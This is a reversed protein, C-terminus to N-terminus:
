KPTRVDMETERVRCYRQSCMVRRNGSVSVQGEVILEEAPVKM